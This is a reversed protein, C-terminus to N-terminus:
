SETALSHALTNASRPVHKFYIRQFGGKMQQIKRIIAEVESKDQHDTKCKKIITMADGEVIVIPLRLQLGLLLAQFCAHGEM